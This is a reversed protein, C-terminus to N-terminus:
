PHVTIEPIPTVFRCGWARVGAMQEMVEDLLNWPLVLLWDPRTEFVHDPTHIPLHTGPLLRGQKHPSRDVVYQIDGDAVGCTNLLTNGKAAAGYAAVQEGRARADALFRRLSTCCREVREAFAAYTALDHLGAAEEAARVRRAGEAEPRPDDDAVVSLRLSGGHTPLQEVDLLRLGHRTLVPELAVLSLYSFHEHYITDFQVGGILELLHPFEISITGGPALLVAMGSVFGNLDPVHALVNNAVILDARTGDAVLSEALERGFFEAVTPVGAAVAVEAVNRAPEIGLVPVGLRQFEKLLYGDNSAVEVVLSGAGLRAGAMSAEAFRRVHELWTTSYSSFYAYDGFIEEPTAFEALQVLLCADCVWAHLPFRPEAAAEEPSALYSNALPTQGLDVFTTTLPKGCGRCTPTV